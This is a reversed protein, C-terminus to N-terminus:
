DEHLSGLMTLFVLSLTWFSDSPLAAVIHMTDNKLSSRTELKEGQIQGVNCLDHGARTPTFPRLVLFPLNKEEPEVDM